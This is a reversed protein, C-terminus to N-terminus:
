VRGKLLSLTGLLICVSLSSGAEMFLFLSVVVLLGIMVSEFAM